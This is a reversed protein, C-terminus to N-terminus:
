FHYPFRGASSISIRSGQSAFAFPIQTQFVLSQTLSDERSKRDTSGPVQVEALRQPSHSRQVQAQGPCQPHTSSQIIRDTDLRLETEPKSVQAQHSDQDLYALTPDSISRPLSPVHSRFSSTHASSPAPESRSRGFPNCSPQSIAVAASSLDEISDDIEVSGVSSLDLDPELSETSICGQASVCHDVVTIGNSKNSTPLYSSFGRVVQSDPVIGDTHLLGVSSRDSLSSSKGSGFDPHQLLSSSSEQNPFSSQYTIYLDRDLNSQQSIQVKLDSLASHNPSFHETEITNPIKNFNKSDSSNTKCFLVQNNNQTQSIRDGVAINSATCDSKAGKRKRKQRRRKPKSSHHLPVSPHKKEWAKIAAINM